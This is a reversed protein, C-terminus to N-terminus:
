LPINLSSYRTMLIRYLQQGIPSRCLFAASSEAADKVGHPKQHTQIWNPAGFGSPKKKRARVVKWGNEMGNEEGSCSKEKDKEMGTVDPSICDQRCETTESIDEVQMKQLSPPTTKNEAERAQVGDEEMDKVERWGKGERRRWLGNGAATGSGFPGNLGGFGGTLKSPTSAEKSSDPDVTGGVFKSGAVKQSLHKPLVERNHPTKPCGDLGQKNFGLSASDLIGISGSGFRLSSFIISFGKTSFSTSYRPSLSATYGSLLGELGPETATLPTSFCHFCTRTFFFLDLPNRSCSQIGVRGPDLRGKGPRDEEAATWTDGLLPAADTSGPFSWTGWNHEQEHHGTDSFGNEKNAICEVLPTKTMVSGSSQDVKGVHNHRVAAKMHDFLSRNSPLSSSPPAIPGLRSPNQSLQARNSGGGRLHEVSSRTEFLNLKGGKKLISPRRHTFPTHGASKSPSILHTSSISATPSLHAELPASFSLNETVAHPNSDVNQASQEVLSQLGEFRNASCSIPDSCDATSLHKLSENRPLTYKQHNLIQTPDQTHGLGDMAGGSRKKKARIPIWEEEPRVQSIESEKLKASLEKPQEVDNVREEDNEVGPLGNLDKEADDVSRPSSQVPQSKMQCAKESLILKKPPNLNHTVQEKWANPAPTPKLVAGSECLPKLPPFLDQYMQSHSGAKPLLSPDTNSTSVPESAVELSPLPPTEVSKEDM